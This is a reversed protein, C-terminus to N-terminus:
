LYKSWFEMEERSTSLEDLIQKFSKWMFTNTCPLAITTRLYCGETLEFSDPHLDECKCKDLDWDSPLDIVKKTTPMTNTNPLFSLKVMFDGVNENRFIFWFSKIEPLVCYYLYHLQMTKETPHKYIENQKLFLRRPLRKLAIESWLCIKLKDLTTPEEETIYINYGTLEDYPPTIEIFSETSTYVKTTIKYSEHVTLAICQAELAFTFNPVTCPPAHFIIIAKATQILKATYIISIDISSLKQITVTSENSKLRFVGMPDGVIQVGFMICKDTPNNLTIIQEDERSLDASFKVTSRPYCSPLIEYLYTTLLIMKVPNPYVIDQPKITFGLKAKDWVEIVKIVNHISEEEGEPHRYVESLLHTLYPCFSATVAVFILGDSLDTSFNTVERDDPLSKFESSTWLETQQIKFHNNLWKLLTHEPTSYVSDSLLGNGKGGM